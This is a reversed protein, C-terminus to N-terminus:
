RQLDIGVTTKSTSGASRRTSQSESCYKFFTYGCLLLPILIVLILRRTRKSDDLLTENVPRLFETFRSDEVSVHVLIAIFILGMYMAIVTNPIPASIIGGIVFRLFIWCVIFIALCITFLSIKKM